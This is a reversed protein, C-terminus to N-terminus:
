QKRDPWCPRDVFGVAEIGRLDILWNPMATAPAIYNSPLGQKDIALSAEQLSCRSIAYRPKVIARYVEYMAPVSGIAILVYALAAVVLKGKERPALAGFVFAVIVLSTISGRMVLDNNPGFKFFPLALLIAGNIVFLARWERPVDSWQAGVLRLVPLQFLIFIVYWLLFNNQSLPSDHAITAPALLLYAVIPLFAAAIIFGVWTRRAFLVERWQTAVVFVLWPIFPLVALPSWFALAAVSVGITAVDVTSRTNLLLLTALWWGPLAHNPVWFFQVISSSYQYFPHWTDMGWRQLHPWYHDQGATSLLLAGVISLGGFAILIALHAWGRGLSMLLYLTAGLLTANQGLLAVHAAFLGLGRGVFAPVMYMGLPARLLYTAGNWDYLVPNGHSVLDALVADRISWDETAYFLHTEGGLLFIVFALGICASLQRVRLPRRLVDDDSVPKPGLVLWFAGCCGAMLLAAPFARLVPAFLFSPLLVMLSVVAVVARDRIM